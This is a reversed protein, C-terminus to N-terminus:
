IFCLVYRFVFSFIFLYVIGFRYLCIFLFQYRMICFIFCIVDGPSRRHSNTGNDHCSTAVPFARTRGTTAWGTARRVRMKFDCTLRLRAIPKGKTVRRVFWLNLEIPVCRFALAFIWSKNQYAAVVADFALFFFRLRLLFLTKPLL